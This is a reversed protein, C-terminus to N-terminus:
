EHNSNNTVLLLSTFRGMQHCIEVLALAASHLPSSTGPHTPALNRQKIRSKITDVSINSSGGLEEKKQKIVQKLYCGM